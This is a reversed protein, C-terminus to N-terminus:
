SPKGTGVYVTHSAKDLESLMGDVQNSLEEKHDLVFQREIAFYKGLADVQKDNLSPVKEILALKDDDTFLVSAEILTVLAVKKNM